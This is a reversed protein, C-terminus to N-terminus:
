QQKRQKLKSIVIAAKMTAATSCGYSKTAYLLRDTRGSQNPFDSDHIHATFTGNGIGMDKNEYTYQRM